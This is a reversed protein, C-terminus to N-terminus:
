VLALLVHSPRRLIKRKRGQNVPKVGTYAQHGARRFRKNKLNYTVKGKGFRSLAHCFNSAKALALTLLIPFILLLSARKM